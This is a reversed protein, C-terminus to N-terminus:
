NTNNQSKKQFYFAPLFLVLFLPQILFRRIYFLIMYDDLFIISIYFASILIIFLLALIAVTFKIMKVDKFIVYLVALTITSNLFYRFFYHFGIKIRSFEPLAQNHYDGKFFFVFPDDFLSTQYFRILALLLVLIFAVVIEKKHTLLKKM